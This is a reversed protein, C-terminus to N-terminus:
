GSSPSPQRPRMARALLWALAGLVGLNAVAIGVYAKWGLLIWGDHKDVILDWLYVGNLVLLADFVLVAAIIPAVPRRNETM